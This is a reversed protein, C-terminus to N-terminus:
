PSTAPKARPYSLARVINFGYEDTFFSVCAGFITYVGYVLTYGVLLIIFNMNKFLMRLSKCLPDRAVSASMSPPTKPKNRMFVITMLCCVSGIIAYMWLYKAM